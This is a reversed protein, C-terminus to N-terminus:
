GAAKVEFERLSPLLMDLAGDIRVAVRTDSLATVTWNSPIVAPLQQKRLTLQLPGGEGQALLRQNWSVADPDFHNGEVRRILTHDLIWSASAAPDKLGMLQALAALTRQRSAEPLADQILRRYAHHGSARGAGNIGGFGVIVPLRPQVM